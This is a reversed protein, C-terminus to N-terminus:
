ESNSKVESDERRFPIQERDSPKQVLSLVDFPLISSSPDYFANRAWLSTTALLPFRDETENLIQILAKYPEETTELFKKIAGKDTLEIFERAERILQHVVGSELDQFALLEEPRFDRPNRLCRMIELCDADHVLKQELLGPNPADKEAVAKGLLAADAESCGAELLAKEAMLGSEKDWLDEGDDQRAADHMGAALHCFIGETRCPKGAQLYLERLITSFFAVRAAHPVGHWFRAEGSVYPKRYHPFVHQNLHRNLSKHDKDELASAQQIEFSADHMRPIKQMEEVLSAPYLDIENDLRHTQLWTRTQQMREEPVFMLDIDAGLKASPFNYERCGCAKMPKLRTSGLLVPYSATILTKDDEKLLLKPPNPDLIQLLREYRKKIPGMNRRIRAEIKDRVQVQLFNEYTLPLGTEQESRLILDLYYIEFSRMTAPDKKKLELIKEIGQKGSTKFGCVSAKLLLFSSPNDFNKYLGKEESDLLNILFYLCRRDIWWENGSWSATSPFYRDNIKKRVEEDEQAKQLEEVPLDLIELIEAEKSSPDTFIRRKVAEIEEKHEEHFKAFIEPSWQKLRLLRVMLPDWDDHDPRATKLDELCHGLQRLITEPDPAHFSRSIHSAYEWCRDIGEIVDASIWRQSLGNAGMGGKDIEGSMPAIGQDLLKGTPIMTYDTAPITALLSSNTGHLLTIRGALSYAQPHEKAATLLRDEFPHLDKEPSLQEQPLTALREEALEAVRLAMHHRRLPALAKEYAAYLDASASEKYFARKHSYQFAEELPLDPHAALYSIDKEIETYNSQNSTFM